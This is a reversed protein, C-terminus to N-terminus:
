VEPDNQKEKVNSYAGTKPDEKLQGTALQVFRPRDFFPDESEFYSALAHYVIARQNSSIRLNRIIKAIDMMNKRRFSKTKHHKIIDEM